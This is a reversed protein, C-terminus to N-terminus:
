NWAQIIDVFDTSKLAAGGVLGGDIDTQGFLGSANGPKVSGGYLISTDDAVEQGYQDAILKRIYAHMEQAQEPSATVGTGIAWVPEYAIVCKEFDSKDLKFIASSIQEGVVANAQGAERVELKEGCCFIPKMGQNLVAKLKALLFESSESFYSRRESHGLIVYSVGIDALVEPSIEGTYAGSVETHCNQAALHVPSNVIADQITMLHTFPPAVIVTVDEPISAQALASALELGEAVSTNMKWNGAAIKRAM